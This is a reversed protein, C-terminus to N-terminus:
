SSRGPVVPVQSQLSPAVLGRVQLALDILELDRDDHELLSQEALALDVVERVQRLRQQSSPLVPQTVWHVPVEAPGTLSEVPDGLARRVYPRVKNFINDM